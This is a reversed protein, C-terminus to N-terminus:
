INNAWNPSCRAEWAEKMEKIAATLLEIDKLIQQRIVLDASSRYENKLQILERQLLFLTLM